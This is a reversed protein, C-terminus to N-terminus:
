FLMNFYNQLVVNEQEQLPNLTYTGGSIIENMEVWDGYKWKMYAGMYQPPNTNSEMLDWGGVASPAGQGDYHYLDPAGLVHFFEHCLVGVNFYWSESLMFLYDRVIAGNIEVDQTYLSWRHPWLLDAWDGPNGYIVFSVADVFGDENSDVVLDAPVASSISNIANALLSHERQTRDDSGQYGDPNNDSFPEYYSRPNEDQYSTNIDLISGPYHFTNVELTNYSVEKFYNKMSPENEGSQFILDFESRPDAFPPDDSFRIFININNITGSTPADRDPRGDDINLFAMMNANYVEESIAVGPAFGSLEPDSSGVMIESPILEGDDAVAYYFYGDEPNMVITFNNEDHIRRSFQDGTIFCNLISGDPLKISRPISEFWTAFLFAKLFLIFIFPRFYNM